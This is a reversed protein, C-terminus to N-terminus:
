YSKCTPIFGDKCVRFVCRPGYEGCERFSLLGEFFVLDISFRKESCGPQDELSFLNGEPFDREGDRKGIPPEIIISVAITSHRLTREGDAEDITKKVGCQLVM